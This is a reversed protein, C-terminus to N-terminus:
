PKINIAIMYLVYLKSATVQSKTQTWTLIVSFIESIFECISQTQGALLSYTHCIEDLDM